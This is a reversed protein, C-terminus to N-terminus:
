ALFALVEDRFREPAEVHIMHGCGPVLVLRADRIGEALERACAPGTIFDDEGAIVLTPAAIRSLEPRLDFTAFIEENFLKLAAANPREVSLSAVYAAEREGYRAFYLPLERLVLASLEEEGEFRGAQEAELAARADEYWPEGARAAMAAEMAEEQEAAFRALASALVLREVREPYAAAYAAAVVGGHSHGLLRMREVKLHRRLDELDAVYHATRYAEPDAPRASRGTGRPDLLVVALAEGLGALDGFYLASFGPGGPHCVLPPGAGLRRFALTRGDATRALEPGPLATV